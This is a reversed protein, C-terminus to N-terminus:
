RNTVVLDLKGDGSFDKILIGRAFVNPALTLVIVPQQFTNDGNGLMIAVSGKGSVNGAPDFNLTAALDLKGDGNLDGKALGYAGDGGNAGALSTLLPEIFSIEPTSPALGLPAASTKTTLKRGVAPSSLSLALLIAATPLLILSLTVRLTSAHVSSSRRTKM